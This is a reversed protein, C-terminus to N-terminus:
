EGDRRVVVVLRLQPRLTKRMSLVNSMRQSGAADSLSPAVAIVPNLPTSALTLTENPSFFILSKENSVMKNALERFLHSITQSFTKWNSQTVSSELRSTLIVLLLLKFETM